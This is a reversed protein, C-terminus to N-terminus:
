LQWDYAHKHRTVLAEGLKILAMALMYFDYDIQTIVLDINSLFTLKMQEFDIMKMSPHWSPQINNNLRCLLAVEDYWWPLWFEVLMNNHDYKPARIDLQILFIDNNKQCFKSLRQCCLKDANM